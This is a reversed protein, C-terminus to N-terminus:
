IIVMMKKEEEMEKETLHEGEFILYDNFCVLEEEEKINKDFLYDNEKYKQYNECEKVKGKGNILEYIVFGFEDYGNWKREYVFERM